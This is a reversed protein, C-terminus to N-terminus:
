KNEDVPIKIAQGIIIKDHNMQNCQKLSDVTTNHARAIKELSDGAKVQYSQSARNSASKISHGIAKSISTLTTKLKSIEDFKREQLAQTNELEQIKAIAKNENASLTRLDILAKDLIKELHDIKKQISDLDSTLLKKENQKLSDQSRGAAIAKEQKAIKEELLTIEVRASHLEHKVDSLELRLADIASDPYYNNQRASLEYSLGSFLLFLFILFKQM